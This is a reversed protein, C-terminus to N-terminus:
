EEAEKIKQEREAIEQRKKSSFTCQIKEWISKLKEEPVTIFVVGVGAILLSVIILPPAVAGFVVLLVGAIVCLIIGIKKM